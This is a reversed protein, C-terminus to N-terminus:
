VGKGVKKRSVTLAQICPTIRKVEDKIKVRYRIDTNQLHDRNPLAIPVSAARQTTMQSGKVRHLIKKMLMWMDIDIHCSASKLLNQGQSRERATLNHLNYINM